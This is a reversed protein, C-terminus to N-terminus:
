SPMRSITASLDPLRFVINWPEITASTVGNRLPPSSSCRTGPASRTADPRPCVLNRAPRCWPRSGSGSGHRARARSRARCRSRPGARAPSRRCRSSSSRPLRDAQGPVGLPGAGVGRQHDCGIVVLRGLVAEVGMVPRDVVRDLQRDDDVVDGAARRRCSAPSWPGGPRAAAVDDADLIGGRVDHPRQEVWAAQPASNQWSDPSSPLTTAKRACPPWPQM